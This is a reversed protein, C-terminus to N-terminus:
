WAKRLGATSVICGTYKVIVFSSHATNYCPTVNEPTLLSTRQHVEFMNEKSARATSTLVLISFPLMFWTCNQCCLLRQQTFGHDSSWAHKACATPHKKQSIAHVRVLWGPIGQLLHKQLSSRWRKSQVMCHFTFVPQRCQWSPTGQYAASCSWLSRPNAWDTRIKRVFSKQFTWDVRWFGGKLFVPGWTSRRTPFGKSVGRSFLINFCTGLTWAVVPCGVSSAFWSTAQWGFHEANVWQWDKPRLYGMNDM